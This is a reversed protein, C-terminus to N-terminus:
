IKDTSLVRINGPFQINRDEEATIFITTPKTTSVSNFSAQLKKSFRKSGSNIQGINKAVEGDSTMWVVYAKNGGQLREVEALNSITIGIAYNDNKDKKITVYGRAAPVVPSTTFAIKKNCGGLTILLFASCLIFGTTIKIRNLYM